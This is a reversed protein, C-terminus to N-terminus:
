RRAPRLLTLALWALLGGVPRGTVVIQAIIEAVEPIRQIEARVLVIATVM